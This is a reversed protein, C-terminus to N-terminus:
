SAAAADYEPHVSRLHTALGPGRGFKRECGPVPCPKDATGELESLTTGHQSRIHAGLRERSPLVSECGPAPCPAPTSAPEGRSVAPRGPQRGQPRGYEVLEALLDAYRKACAECLEVEFAQAPEDPPTISVSWTRGPENRSDDHQHPDCWLQRILEQAM